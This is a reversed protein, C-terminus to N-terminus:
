GESLDVAVFRQEGSSDLLLLVSKRKAESAQQVRDLVDDPTVVEELGVEIIVDGPRINRQAAAGDPDVDTVIVGHMDDAIGFRERLDPSITSFTMGLTEAEVSDGEPTAAAVMTPPTEDLEDIVVRKTQLEGKRLLVVDVEKGIETGAVIRPLDRMEPVEQGDFELIIDGPEFQAREAPSDPTVDAVLAGAAEELGLSAAIEDTVTQIRVGLWGRRTHGFERLQAIVPEAIASPISFGGGVSGGSPSIIATNVGIVEGDMNFLPGGSNGRNISADTQLFDDYPGANINRGRASLIGATVTNGLGFPNGIALVWDGVRIEDSNGFRVATLPKDTEVKLLALDTKPDHGILTAPLESDDSLIVTIEDADKIVHNNTVVYGSVDIIFGSGLSQVRRPRGHEGRRQREFFDRFLDEFPSGPPMEPIAEPGPAAEVSQTTSINVVAATLAEALDAFSEPAGRAHAPQALAFMVLVVLIGLLRAFAIEMRPLVTVRKGARVSFYNRVRYDGILTFAYKISSLMGCGECHGTIHQAGGPLCSSPSCHGAAGVFRFLM